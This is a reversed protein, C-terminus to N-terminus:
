SFENSIKDYVTEIGELYYPSSVDIGACAHALIMGLMTDVAVRYDGYMKKKDFESTLSGSTGDATHTLSISIGFLPLDYEDREV